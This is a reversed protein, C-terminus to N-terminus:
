LRAAAAPDCLLTVRENVSAVLTAPLRDTPGVGDGFVAAVAEAKGEGSVLFVVHRAAAIAAFTMSVRPVFPEFGAEPVAVVWREREALAPQGPFLSNVHGDPGLGLLFLAFQPRGAQELASEYRAAAQAPGLEGEIRRVDTQSAAPGLRQLLADRFMGYNSRPDDPPVCREDGFWVRPRTWAQPDCAAQEYAASPTSGGTMVLDGGGRAAELLLQACEAAPDAVIRRQVSVGPV